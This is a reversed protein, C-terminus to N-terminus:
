DPASADWIKILPVQDEDPRDLVLAALQGGVSRFALGHVAQREPLPLQLLIRLAHQGERCFVPAVSM